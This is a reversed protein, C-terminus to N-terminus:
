LLPKIETDANITYKYGHPCQVAFGKPVDVTFRGANDGVGQITIACGDNMVFYAEYM